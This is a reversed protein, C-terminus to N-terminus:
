CLTFLLEAPRELHSFIKSSEGFDIELSFFYINDFIVMLEKGLIASIALRLTNLRLMDNLTHNKGLYSIWHITAM